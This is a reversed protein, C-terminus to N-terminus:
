GMRCCHTRTLTEMSLVREGLGGILLGMPDSETWRARLLLLRLYGVVRRLERFSAKEPGVYLPTLVRPDLIVPDTIKLYSPRNLLLNNALYM